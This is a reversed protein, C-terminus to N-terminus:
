RKDEFAAEEESEKLSILDDIAGAVFLAKGINVAIIIAMGFAMPIVVGYMVAMPIGTAAGSNMMGIPLINYAGALLLMLVGLMMINSSVFFVKKVGAPLKKVVSTFGLHNNEALAAIAGLFVLWVFLFRTLEEAWVIGSNFLYRLGVNLFILVSIVVLLSGLLINLLRNTWGILWDM